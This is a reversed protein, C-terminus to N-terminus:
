AYRRVCSNTAKSCSPSDFAIFGDAARRSICICPLGVEKPFLPRLADFKGISGENFALLMNRLWEHPTHQLAGLIPHMIQYVRAYCLVKDQTRPYIDGVLEGFNYISDAMFGSICLDHARQIRQEHNLDKELDV